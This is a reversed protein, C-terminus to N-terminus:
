QTLTAQGLDNREDSIIQRSGPQIHTSCRCVYGAEIAAIFNDVFSRCGSYCDLRRLQVDVGHCGAAAGAQCEAVAEEESTWVTCSGFGTRCAVPIHNM